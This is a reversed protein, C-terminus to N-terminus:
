SVRRLEINGTFIKSKVNGKKYDVIIKGNDDLLIQRYRGTEDNAWIVREIKEGTDKDIVFHKLAEIRLPKHRISLFM